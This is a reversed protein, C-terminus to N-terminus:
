VQSKSQRSAKATYTETMGILKTSLGKDHITYTPSCRGQESPDKNMTLRGGNLDGTAIKAAVVFGCDM